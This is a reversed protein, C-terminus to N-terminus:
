DLTWAGAASDQGSLSDLWRDLAARDYLVRRGIQVPHVTIRARFTNASLGCYEAAQEVSLMRREPLPLTAAAPLPSLATM